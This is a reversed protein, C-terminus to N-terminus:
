TGKKLSVLTRVGSHEPLEYRELLQIEIKQKRAETQSRAIESEIDPGKYLVARTGRRIAPGFLACARDLPALARGTILDARNERLWEEARRPAVTANSIGLKAIVTDVFRAKKGTSEALVFRVDPLALALPVGPYGPGTGADLVLESSAFHRWPLVSDLVHKIAAERESTIRTLNLHQNAEVVLELHAATGSIVLERNPINAPLVADLESEFSM